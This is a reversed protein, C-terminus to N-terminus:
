TPTSESLWPSDGEVTYDNNRSLPRANEKLKSRRGTIESLPAVRPEKLRIELFKTFSHLKSLFAALHQRGEQWFIAVAMLAAVGM